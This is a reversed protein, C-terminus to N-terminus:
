SLKEWWNNATPSPDWPIIAGLEPTCCLIEKQKAATTFRKVPEKWNHLALTFAGWHVPISVKAGIDSAAMISEEPVMHIQKWLENYQGCEIFAWDFPGFRRGIERFHDGYGGDGSLYVKHHDTQIIWGGWLSKSRDFLGRGSFHRSPTFTIKIDDFHIDQWWDFEIIQNEPIGWRKLHRGSGYAVYYKSVRKKLRKISKYDLHDYHDHTILIADIDPLTDIISLTDKSYRETKVPAIPSADPGFMPDVLLNKGNLQLLLTSHGFWIFKPIQTELNWKEINFAKIELPEQPSRAKRNKLQARLLGPITRLNVDISTTSLNEFQNGNWWSSLEM